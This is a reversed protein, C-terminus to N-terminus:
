VGGFYCLEAKKLKSGMNDDYTRCHCKIVSFKLLPAKLMRRGRDLFYILFASSSKERYLGLYRFDAALTWLFFIASVEVAFEDDDLLKIIPDAGRVYKITLGPYRCHLVIYM